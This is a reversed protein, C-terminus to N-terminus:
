IYYLKCKSGAGDAALLQFTDIQDFASVAADALYQVEFIFQEMNDENDRNTFLM